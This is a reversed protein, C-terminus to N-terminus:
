YVVYYGDKTLGGFIGEDRLLASASLAKLFPRIVTLLSECYACNEIYSPIDIIFIIFGFFTRISPQTLTLLFVHVRAFCCLTHM